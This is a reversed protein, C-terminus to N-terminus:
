FFSQGIYPHPVSKLSYCWLHGSYCVYSIDMMNFSIHMDLFTKQIYKKMSYFLTLGRDMWKEGTPSIVTRFFVVSLSLFNHVIANEADGQESIKRSTTCCHLCWCVSFLQCQPQIASWNGEEVFFTSAMIYKLLFLCQNCCRRYCSQGKLWTKTMCCFNKVNQCGKVLTKVNPLGWLLLSEQKWISPFWVGLLSKCGCRNGCGQLVSTLAVYWITTRRVM